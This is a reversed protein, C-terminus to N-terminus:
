AVGVIENILSSKSLVELKDAADKIVLKCDHRKLEKQVAFLLQLGAADITEVGSADLVIDHNKHIEVDIDHYVKAVEAVNFTSPLVINIADHEVEADGVSDDAFLGWAVGEGIPASTYDTSEDEGFLGWSGDDSVLEVPKEVVEEPEDDFLGWGQDALSNDVLTESEVTKVEEVDVQTAVNNEVEAAEPQTSPVVQELQDLTEEVKSDIDDFSIGLDAADDGSIWALPDHGLKSKFPTSRAKKNADSKSVGRKKATKKVAKKTTRTTKKTM